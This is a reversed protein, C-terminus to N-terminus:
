STAFATERIQTGVLSRFWRSSSGFQMGVEVGERRPDLLECTDNSRKTSTILERRRKLQM